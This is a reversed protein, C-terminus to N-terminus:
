RPMAIRRRAEGLWGEEDLIRLCREREERVGEERAAALLRAVPGVDERGGVCLNVAAVINRGEGLNKPYPLKTVVKGNAAIIEVTGYEEVRWPTPFHDDWEIERDREITDAM